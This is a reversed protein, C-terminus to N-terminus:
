VPRPSSVLMMQPALVPVILSQSEFLIEWLRWLSILQECLLYMWGDQKGDVWKRVVFRAYEVKLGIKQSNQVM